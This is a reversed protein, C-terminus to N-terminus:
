YCQPCITEIGNVKSKWRWQIKLQYRKAVQEAPDVVIELVNLVVEDVHALGPATCKLPCDEVVAAFQTLFSAWKANEDAISCDLNNRVLYASLEDRLKSLQLSEFAEMLCTADMKVGSQMRYGAEVIQQVKDIQQVIRKAESRNMVPHAVWDCAFKLTRFAPGDGRIEMLKRIEVLLYVVQRESAIPEQLERRLKEIITHEM